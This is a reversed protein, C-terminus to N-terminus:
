FIQIIRVPDITRMMCGSRHPPPPSCCIPNLWLCMTLSLRGPVAAEGAQQAISVFSNSLTRHPFVSETIPRKSCGLSFPGVFWGLCFGRENTSKSDGNLDTGVTLLTCGERAERSEVTSSAWAGGVREFLYLSVNNCLFGMLHRKFPFAAPITCCCICLQVSCLVNHLQGHM